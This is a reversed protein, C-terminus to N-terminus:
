QLCLPCQDAGPGYRISGFRVEPESIYSHYRDLLGRFLKMALDSTAREKWWRGFLM